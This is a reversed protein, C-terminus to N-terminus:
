ADCDTAPHPEHSTVPLYFSAQPKVLLARVHTTGLALAGKQHEFGISTIAASFMPDVASKISEIQVVAPQMVTFSQVTNRM